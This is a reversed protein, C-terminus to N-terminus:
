RKAHSAFYEEARRRIEEPLLEEKRTALSWRHGVPDLLEGMRDGWFMDQPALMAKGGAGIAQEFAKDVDGVYLYLGCSNNHLTAPSLWGHEPNESCLMFRSDGIELEAHTMDPGAEVRYIERANFARKYFEITNAFDKVVLLPTVSHYGEPLQKFQSEM